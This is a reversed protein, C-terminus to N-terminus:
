ASQEMFADFSKGMKQGDTKGSRPHPLGAVNLLRLLMGFDQIGISQMATSRPILGISYGALVEAIGNGVNPVNGLGGGKAEYEEAPIFYGAARGNRIICVGERMGTEIFEGFRSKAETATFNKM